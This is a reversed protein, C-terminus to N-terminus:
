VGARVFCKFGWKKPKNKIYQRRSGAKVGKYPIMMEDVSFKNELGDVKLCNKRVIELIPRIKFYRDNEYDNNENNVFHMNSRISEYRKLSMVDAIKPIRLKNSWYDKYSPLDIIGMLLEIGIFDEIEKVNTKISKLKKQTSYLNTQEVILELCSEDFFMKFFEVPNYMPSSDHQFNNAQNESIEIAHILEEQRWDINM